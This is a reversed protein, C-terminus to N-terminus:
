SVEVTLDNRSVMFYDIESNKHNFTYLLEECCICESIKKLWSSEMIMDNKLVNVQSCPEKDRLVEEEFFYTIQSGKKIIYNKTPLDVETSNKVVGIGVGPNTTEIKLLKEEVNKSNKM